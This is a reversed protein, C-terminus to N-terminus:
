RQIVIPRSQIHEGSCVRVYYVGPQLDPVYLRTPFAGSTRVQERHLVEGLLDYVEITAMSSEQLGTEVFFLGNTPNPYISMPVSVSLNAVGSPNLTLNTGLNSSSKRRQDMINMRQTPDCSYGPPFVLDVRYFVTDSGPYDTYLNIQGTSSPVTTLLTDMVIPSPGRWIQYSNIQIGEYNTWLLNVAQAGGPGPQGPSTQLHITKHINGRLTYGGCTDVIAVCYRYARNNPNVGATFDIYESLAAYPVLAISDFVGQFDSERYVIYASIAQTVPKEWSIVNRNFFALTDVTVACMTPPNLFSTNLPFPASVSQCGQANSVRVRYEGSSFAAITQTNGVFSGNKTWFYTAYGSSAQLQVSGGLCFTTPGLPNITPVAPPANYLVQIPVSTQPCGNYYITVSYAGPITAYYTSNPSGSIPLGNINWQYLFGAGTNCTLMVSDGSCAYIPGTQNIFAPHTCGNTTTIWNPKTLTDSCGSVIQTAMLTVDFTGNSLYQHLVSPNNSALTTGDGFNWVFNYGSPNPTTNTFVVNFPPTIFNNLSTFNLNFNPQGVSVLVQDTASCSGDSVSVSYLTNASPSAQPNAVNAQSLGTAPTWTYILNSNGTYVSAALLGISGGCSVLTDIGADVTLNYVSVNATASSSCGSSNQFAYQIPHVGVGAANPYFIGNQVGNGSFSGGAPFGGGLVVSDAGFCISSQTLTLGVVPNPLVQITQNASATCGGSGSYSYSIIFTGVGSSAPNFQDAGVATGSFTGGSPTAFSSLDLLSAGFCQPPLSSFSIAPAANVHIIKSTTFSCGISNTYSYAISFDGPTSPTFYGFSVGTGSFSGGSPTGSLLLPLTSVCVTDPAILNFGAPPLSQSIVLPSSNVQCAGNTVTVQYIGSTGVSISSTTQGGSWLYTAAPIPTQLSASLTTQGGPCFSAASPPTLLVVPQADVVIVLPSASTGCGQNAVTYQVTNNGSAALSPYFFSGIIGSSGSFFGGAPYGVLQQPVSNACLSTDSITAHPTAKVQFAASEVSAAPSSSQCRLVYGLGESLTLPLTIFFSGGTQSTYTQLPLPLAFSGSADSLQFSFQNGSNFTGSVVLTTTPTTGSCYFPNSMSLSVLSQANAKIHPLVALLVIQFFRKM